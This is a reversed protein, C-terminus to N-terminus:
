GVFLTACRNQEVRHKWSELVAFMRAAHNAPSTGALLFSPERRCHALDNRTSSAPNQQGAQPHPSGFGVRPLGMRAISWMSPSQRFLKRLLRRTSQKLQWVSVGVNPARLM